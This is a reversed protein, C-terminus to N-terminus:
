PSEYRLARPLAPDHIPVLARGRMRTVAFAVTIGGIALLAGLDIFGFVGGWPRAVPM